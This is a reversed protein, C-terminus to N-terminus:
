GRRERRRPRRRQYRDVWIGWLSWNAGAATRYRIKEQLAVDEEVHSRCPPARGHSSPSASRTWLARRRQRLTDSRAILALGAHRSTIRSGCSANRERSRPTLTPAEVDLSPSIASSASNM